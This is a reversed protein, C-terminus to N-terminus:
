LGARSFWVDRGTIEEDGDYEFSPRFPPRVPRMAINLVLGSMLWVTVLSSGGYSLFPLTIGIIPLLGVTMGINILAQSAIITTCGIVILRGFADKALAATLLAGAIWVLYLLIVCAGGLLGFRNVLVAFVMDTHAEPLGNYRVLSRSKADSVGTLGGAGAIRVAAYRQFNIDQAGEGEDRMAMIMGRIRAQQHPKLVPYIVPAAIVAVLVVLALHRLKAGAAILMAFMTPVFLSATGLDPQMAILAMPVGTIIAPPILGLPTRHNRRFRLYKAMVIVYAIKAVESPQINFSGVSIWSRAGNRADVIWRPVSPVLLFVLSALVLIMIPWAVYRV